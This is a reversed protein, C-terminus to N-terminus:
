RRRRWMALAAIVGSGLLLFTSPEPIVTYTVDITGFVEFGDVVGFGADAVIDFGRAFAIGETAYDDPDWTLQLYEAATKYGSGLTAYTSTAGHGVTTERFAFEKAGWIDYGGGWIKLSTINLQIHYDPNPAADAPDDGAWSGAISVGFGVKTPDTKDNSYACRGSSSGGTLSRDTFLPGDWSVYDSAVLTPLFTFGGITTATNEDGTESTNWTGGGIGTYGYGLSFESSSIVGAQTTSALAVACLVAMALILTRKM